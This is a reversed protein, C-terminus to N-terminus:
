GDLVTTLLPLPDCIGAEDILQLCSSMLLRWQPVAHCCIAKWAEVMQCLSKCDAKLRDEKM